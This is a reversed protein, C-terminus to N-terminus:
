NGEILIQENISEEFEVDNKEIILTQVFKDKVISAYIQSNPNKNILKNVESLGIGSKVEKTSYGKKFIKEIDIEISTDYSNYIKIINACKRKDFHMEVRIYPDDSKTTAEIANDLLIGLIRSLDPMPFNIKAVDTIIELEFTINKETALFYKSGVIGYIAPENIIKPDIIALTNVSGCEKLLVKIHDQLKDYQKTLVYGNLSQIINNQDHKLTRVGDVLGVLTKNHLETTFLESQTKEYEVRNFTSTFCSVHYSVFM